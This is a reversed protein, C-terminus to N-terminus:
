GTAVGYIYTLFHIMNRSAQILSVAYPAGERLIFVWMLGTGLALMGAIIGVIGVVVQALFKKDEFTLSADRMEAQQQEREALLVPNAAM